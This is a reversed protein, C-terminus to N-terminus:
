SLGPAPGGILIPHNSPIAATWARMWCISLWNPPAARPRRARRTRDSWRRRARRVAAVSGDPLVPENAGCTCAWPVLAVVTSAVAAVSGFTGVLEPLNFRAPTSETATPM